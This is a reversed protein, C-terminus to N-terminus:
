YTIYFNFIAHSSDEIDFRQIFAIASKPLKHSDGEIGSQGWESVGVGVPYKITRSIALAIPCKTSKCRKGEEIDQLTVKVLQKTM